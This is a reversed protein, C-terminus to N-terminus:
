QKEKNFRLVVGDGIVEDILKSIALGLLAPESINKAEAIVELKRKIEPRVRATVKESPKM